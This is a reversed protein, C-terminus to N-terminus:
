RPPVARREVVVSLRRRAPGHAGAGARAVAVAAGAGAVLTARARRAAGLGPTAAAPCAAEDGLRFSVNDWGSALFRLPLTALDPHQERLLSRVLAEDVDLDAAPLDHAV